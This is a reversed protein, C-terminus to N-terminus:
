KGGNLLTLINFNKLINVNFFLFFHIKKTMKKQSIKTNFCEKKQINM